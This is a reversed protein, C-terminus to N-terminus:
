KSKRKEIFPMSLRTSWLQRPGLGAIRRGGREPLLDYALSCFLQRTTSAARAALRSSPCRLVAHSQFAM